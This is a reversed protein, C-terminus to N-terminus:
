EIRGRLADHENQKDDYELTTAKPGYDAVVVLETNGFVLVPDDSGVALLSMTHRINHWGAQLLGGEPLGHSPISQPHMRLDSLPKSTLGDMPRIKWPLFIGKSLNPRDYASRVRVITSAQVYEDGPEKNEGEWLATFKGYFNATQIVPNRSSNTKFLDHRTLSIDRTNHRYIVASFFVMVSAPARLRFRLAGGPIDKSKESTSPWCVWPDSDSKRQFVETLGDKRFSEGRLSNTQFNEGHIGTQFVGEVVDLPDNWHDAEMEGEHVFNPPHTFNILSM